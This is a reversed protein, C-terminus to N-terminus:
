HVVQGKERDFRLLISNLFAELFGLVASSLCGRIKQTRATKGRLQADLIKYRFISM